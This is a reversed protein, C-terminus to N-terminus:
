ATVFCSAVRASIACGHDGIEDREVRHAHEVARGARARAEGRRRGGSSDRDVTDVHPERASGRHQVDGLVERAPVPVSGGHRRLRKSSESSSM